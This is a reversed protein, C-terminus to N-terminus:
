AAAEEAEAGHEPAAWTTLRKKAPLLQQRQSGTAECWSKQALGLQCGAGAKIRNIALVEVISHM